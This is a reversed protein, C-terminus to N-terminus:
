SLSIFFPPDFIWQVSVKLPLLHTLYINNNRLRTNLIDRNSSPPYRNPCTNHTTSQNWTKNGWWKQCTNASSEFYVVSLMGQAKPRKRQFLRLVLGLFQPVRTYKWSGIEISKWIESTLTASFFRSIPCNKYNLCLSCM